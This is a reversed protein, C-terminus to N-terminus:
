LLARVQELNSGPFLGEMEGEVGEAVTTRSKGVGSEKVHEEVLATNQVKEFRRRIANYDSEVQPVIRHQDVIADVEERTMKSECLKRIQKANPNDRIKEELYLKLGINRVTKISQNLAEQLKKNQNSLEQMQSEYKRSVRKSEMEKKKKLVKRKQMKNRAETLAVEASKVDEFVQGSLFVKMDPETNLAKEIHLAAGLRNAVTGVKEISEKLKQIEEDKEKIQKDIDEPMVFPRMTKKLDEMVVLAAAFEPDKKLSEKIQSEVEEKKLGKTEIGVSSLM